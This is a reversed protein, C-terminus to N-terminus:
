CRDKAPFARHFDPGVTAYLHRMPWSGDMVPL